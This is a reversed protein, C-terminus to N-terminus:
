GRMTLALPRHGAPRAAGTQTAPPTDKLRFVQVAHSLQAAQDQMANAAAAAEEVLAANQQTVQDMQSIAENVQEIGLRQEESADTIEGIIASLRQVSDVVEQMTAGAQDVLKSGAGVKDVSDDILGKIEKAASASRQALNRVETAVVAFGRGQEGARAAEVAANLALINTQFAIGDIVGIIDAIKRSSANISGMTQVVESVVAGGKVAVSSAASALSRAALANDANQKVAATLEEMSSATEELSSAQQETRASLDINGSAIQRSATAIAQTGGRVETVIRLLSATMDKLAQMLEGTEDKSRVDVQVTLDGHAVQRAVDIAARLPGSINHALWWAILAALILAAAGGGLLTWHTRAQLAAAAESRRALLVTEAQGIEGLLARMADMGQKGRGEKELALVPEIAATGQVVARRMAIVPDLAGALWAQKAADLKMLREQQAPNDSTLGRATALHTGFAAQGAKYPELSAEAGTIVYGRQGTEVNILSELLASNEALVQFTHTNIANADALRSVNLTAVTVLVALLLVITGFGGYLRTAIRLDAIRM